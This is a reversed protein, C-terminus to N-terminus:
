AAAAYRPLAAHASDRPITSSTTVDIAAPSLAPLMMIRSARAHFVSLPATFPMPLEAPARRMPPQPLIYRCCRAFLMLPKLFM